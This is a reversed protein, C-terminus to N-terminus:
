QKSALFQNGTFMACIVFFLFITTVASKLLLSGFLRNMYVVAMCRCGLGKSCLTLYFLIDVVLVGRPSHSLKTKANLFSYFVVFFFLEMFFQFQWTYM